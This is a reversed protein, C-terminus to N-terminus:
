VGAYYHFGINWDIFIPISKDEALINGPKIDNHIINM